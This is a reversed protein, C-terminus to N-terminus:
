CHSTLHLLSSLYVYMGCDIAKLITEFDEVNSNEIRYLTLGDVTELPETKNQFLDTFYALHRSLTSRHLKFQVEEVQIIVNGDPYWFSAHKKPTSTPKVRKPMPEGESVGTAQSDNIRPRKSSPIASPTKEASDTPQFM